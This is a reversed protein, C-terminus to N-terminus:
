ESYMNRMFNFEKDNIGKTDIMGSYMGSLLATTQEYVQLRKTSDMFEFIGINELETTKYKFGPHNVCASILSFLISSDRSEEKKRNEINMKEEFIISEKTSKNKAKEVKPFINVMTRIYLAMENFDNESLEIDQEKNYLTIEDTLNGSDDFVNFPIFKSLDIDGFLLATKDVTLGSMSLLSRFLTYDSVKNWDIGNEWLFVRHTTPNTIFPNLMQWFDDEGYDIIQGITPQTIIIGNKMTYPRRFYMKLLDIDGNMM